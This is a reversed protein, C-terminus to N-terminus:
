GSIQELPSLALSRSNFFNDLKTKVVGVNLMEVCARSGIFADGGTLFVKNFSKTM